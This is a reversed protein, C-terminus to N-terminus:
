NTDGLGGVTGRDEFPRNYSVKYAAGDFGPGTGTYLSNGGWTNYAEWTADSTQYLIDSHSADNRVVFVIHSAGGTDNRVVKAFFVGSVATAPVNWTATVSWNGADVLGTTKDTLPAPQIVDTTQSSPISVELRAGDGGYYGMRYIDIHYPALSTDTIKFSVTQGVDVSINTAYGQITQDGAGQIDWQSQPTGPLLNEAVIPNPSASLMVRHELFEPHVLPSLAVSRRRDVDAARKRRIKFLTM